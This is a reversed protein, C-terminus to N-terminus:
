KLSSKAGKVMEGKSLIRSKKRGIHNSSIAFSFLLKIFKPINMTHSNNNKTNLWDFLGM